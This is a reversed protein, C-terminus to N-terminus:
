LTSASIEGAISIVWLSNLIMWASRAAEFVPAKATQSVVGPATTCGRARVLRVRHTSLTTVRFRRLCCDASGPVVSDRAWCTLV